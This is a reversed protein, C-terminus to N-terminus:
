ASSDSIVSTIEDAVHRLREAMAEQSHESTVYVVSVAMPDHGRLALPVSVASLGPIVESFSTAYGRSRVASMEARQASTLWAPWRSEPLQLLIARGPGGVGLPHQTGPHEAVTVKARPPEVSVLTVVEEHDLVVLFCTAGLAQAAARLAPLAASQVDRDVCAALSALRPGLAVLGRDDRTVLRHSELTRLLRYVISRHLAMGTVVEAITVPEGRGALFELVQIGRSLTQVTGEDAATTTM